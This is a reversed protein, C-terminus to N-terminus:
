CDGDVRVTKSFTGDREKRWGLACPDGRAAKIKLAAEFTMPPLGAFVEMAKVNRMQTQQQMQEVVALMTDRGHDQEIQHLLARCDVADVDKAKCCREAMAAIESQTLM